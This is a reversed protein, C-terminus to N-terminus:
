KRRAQFAFALNRARGRRIRWLQASGDLCDIVLMLSDEPATEIDRPGPKALGIPHSHFTGIIEDGPSSLRREAARVDDAYLSWSGKRRAKNRTQVAVLVDSTSVLLGCIERGM